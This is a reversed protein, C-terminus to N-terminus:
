TTGAKEAYQPHAQWTRLPRGLLDQAEFFGFGGREAIREASQGPWRKAYAEWVELHESWVITGPVQVRGLSPWRDRPCWYAGEGQVPARREASDNM